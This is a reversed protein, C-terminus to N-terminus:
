TDTEKYNEFNKELDEFKKFIKTITHNSWVKKVTKKVKM